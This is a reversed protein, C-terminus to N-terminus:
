VSKSVVSLLSLPHLSMGMNLADGIDIWKPREVAECVMSPHWNRDTINNIFVNKVQWSHGLAEHVFSEDAYDMKGSNKNLGSKGWGVSDREISFYDTIGIASIGNRIANKYFICLFDDMAPSVFQDNKNTGKTHVHFDWKRWISGQSM